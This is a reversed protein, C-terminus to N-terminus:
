IRFRAVSPFAWTPLPQPTLTYFAASIGFIKVKYEYWINPAVDTDLWYDGDSPSVPETNQIYVTGVAKNGAHRMECDSLEKGCDDLSNDATYKGLRDYCYSGTYPCTANTYDFSSTDTNWNRYSQRCFDRIIQRKPIKIGEYDMYPSLEFEAVAKTKQPMSRIKYIDPAFEANPNAEPKGDLYKELTRRRTFEAGVLSDFSNIYSAFTLLVNSVMIKPRPLSETGTVQWGDTKMHIPNYERANFSIPTYDNDISETFYLAGTEGITTLDIEYLSVMNGVALNQVDSAINQQFTM